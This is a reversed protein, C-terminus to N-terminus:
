TASRPGARPGRARRLVPRGHDLEPGDPARGAGRGGPDRQEPHGPDRRDRRRPDHLARRRRLRVLAAERARHDARRGVSAGRCLGDRTTGGTLGAPPGQPLRGPDTRRHRAHVAPDHLYECSRAVGPRGAPRRRGRAPADRVFAAAHAPQGARGPGGDLGRAQGRGVGAAPRAPTRSRRRLRPRRPRPEVHALALMGPRPGDIWRELWDVAVDGIPVLREKDGKGIVRVFGGDM